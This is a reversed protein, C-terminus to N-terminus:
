VCQSVLFPEVIIPSLEIGGKKAEEVDEPTPQWVVVPDYDPATKIPDVKPLDPLQGCFCHAVLLALYQRM